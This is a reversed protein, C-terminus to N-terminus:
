PATRRWTAPISPPVDVVPPAVAPARVPREEAPRRLIRIGLVGLAVAGVIAGWVAPHVRPRMPVADPRRRPLPVPQTLEGDDFAASGGPVVQTADPDVVPADAAQRGGHAPRRRLPTTPEDDM